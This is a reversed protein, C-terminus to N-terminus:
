DGSRAAAAGAGVRPDAELGEGLVVNDILRKPGVRIAAVLYSSPTAAHSPLFTDADVVNIYETSLQGASEGPALVRYAAAVVQGARREGARFAEVGAALAGPLALAHARMAADLYVNRSSLALGDADRVTPRVDIVVPLSLDRVMARVLAAQQADKRGFLAVHPRVITFLKCVVTLVGAFHTPRIAGELIAGVPGPHVTVEPPVPYMTEVSPMWLVDVGASAALDRDREPDRPYTALDENPAFQLPNVFVSMVVLDAQARAARALALHGEHLYGMTPVLAVRRGSSAAGGSSDRIEEMTTLVRM